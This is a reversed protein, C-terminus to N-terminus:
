EGVLDIGIMSESVAKVNVAADDDSARVTVSDWGTGGIVVPALPSACGAGHNM